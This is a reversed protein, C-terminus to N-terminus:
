AKVLATLPLAFEGRESKNTATNYPKVQAYDEGDITRFGLVVFTGAVHGKVIENISFKIPM